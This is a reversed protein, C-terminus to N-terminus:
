ASASKAKQRSGIAEIILTNKYPLQLRAAPASQRDFLWSDYPRYINVPAPSRMPPQQAVRLRGCDTAKEVTSGRAEAQQLAIPSEMMM